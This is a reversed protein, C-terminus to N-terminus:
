QIESEIIKDRHFLLFKVFLLRHRYFQTGLNWLINGSLRHPFIDHRFQM